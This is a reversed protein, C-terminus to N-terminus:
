GKVTSIGSYSSRQGRRANCADSSPSITPCIAATVVTVSAAAADSAACLNSVTLGAVGCCDSNILGVPREASKTVAKSQSLRSAKM